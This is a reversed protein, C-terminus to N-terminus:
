FKLIVNGPKNPATVAIIAEPLEFLAFERSVPFLHPASRGLEIAVQMDQAREEPPSDAGWTGITVGSLSLSKPVFMTLDAPSDALLGYSILRGKTNLLSGMERVLSGGVGDLVLPIDGQAAGRVVEQWGETATAVIDGGPLIRALREASARSRVLRITGLGARQAFVTILKGVASGAGTQLIFHPRPSLGELGKRLVHRATIVNVLLQAAIADQLGAPIAILLEAPVIAHTQWAQPAFFAVRAGISLGTRRLAAPAADEVVGAAESGPIRGGPIAETRQSYKAAVLQLDGPHIVSRTVRVLIEDDRLAPRSLVPEIQLVKHPDGFSYQVIREGRYGVATSVSNTGLRRETPAPSYQWLACRYIRRRPFKM